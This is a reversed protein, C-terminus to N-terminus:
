ALAAALTLVGLALSLPVRLAMWWRPALTGLKADVVPSLLLGGGLAVLLPELPVLELALLVFGALALLSPLVAAIWAWGHTGRRQAAPASAVLGWWAGGLFTFILAAYAFAVFRAPESWEEPGAYVAAAAIAQPLIGAFGLLRPTGPIRSM